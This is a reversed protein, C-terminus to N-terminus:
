FRPVGRLGHRELSAMIATMAEAAGLPLHYEVRRSLRTAVPNIEVTPIGARAAWVVPEAIYPFVGSTGITFVMDIGDDMADSFRRMAGAPLAEGFLVVNPRLVAGCAPCLPPLERGALDDVTEGHDCVTCRLEQLNGHIEILDSSGAKRHLGDVNQTFVVVKSMVRELVAIARHAANPLAGRCNQEIQALYKWTIDPRVAFVDGSLATEIPIGDETADDNYLGGVGRYTPLGSDASIGAGTIFLVRRAAALRRAIRDIMTLKDVTRSRM